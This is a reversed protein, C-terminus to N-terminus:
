WTNWTPTSSEKKLGFSFVQLNSHSTGVDLLLKFLGPKLGRCLEQSILPLSLTKQAKTFNANHSWCFDKSVCCIIVSNISNTLLLIYQSNCIVLSSKEGLASKQCRLFGVLTEEGDYGLPDRQDHHHRFVTFLWAMQLVGSAQWTPWSKRGKRPLGTRKGRNQEWISIALFVNQTQAWFPHFASVM